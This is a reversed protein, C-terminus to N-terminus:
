FWCGGEGRMSRLDRAAGRDRPLRRDLAPGPHDHGPPGSGFAPDGGLRQITWPLATAVSTALSCSAFLALSVGLAVGEDGLRDPAFPFFLIGILLGIVLGTVLDRIFGGADAVAAGPEGRRVMTWAAREESVGPSLLPPDTDMLDAVTADGDARLLRRLPVLGVLRSGYLVAVEDACDYAAGTLADRVRAVSDGPRPTPVPLTAHDAADGIFRGTPSAIAWPAIRAVAVAPM